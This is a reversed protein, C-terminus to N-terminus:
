ANSKDEHLRVALSRGRIGVAQVPKDTDIVGMEAVCEVRRGAFRCKGVPRLPTLTQGYTGILPELDELNVSTDAETLVPNEPAIKKGITTHPWYKISVVAFVPLLVLSLLVAAYGGFTSHGFTRVIAGTLFALGAVGLIGHSPIFIEAILLAAGVTYILATILVDEM